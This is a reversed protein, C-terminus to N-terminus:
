HFSHQEGYQVDSPRKQLMGIGALSATEMSVYCKIVSLLSRGAVVFTKVVSRMQQTGTVHQLVKELEKEIRGAWHIMGRSPWAIRGPGGPAHPFSQEQSSSSASGGPASSEVETSGLLLLAARAPDTELGCSPGLM